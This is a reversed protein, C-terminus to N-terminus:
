SITLTVEKTVIPTADAGSPTITFTVTAKGITTVDGTPSIAALGTDGMKRTFTVTYQTMDFGQGTLYNTIATVINTTGTQVGVNTTNIYINEDPATTYDSAYVLALRADQLTRTATVYELEGNNLPDWTKNLSLKDYSDKYNSWNTLNYVNNKQNTNLSSYKVVENNFANITATKARLILGTKVGNIAKTYENITVQNALIPVDITFENCVSWYDNFSTVTYIPRYGESYFERAKKYGTYDLNAAASPVLAERAALIRNTKEDVESQPTLVTVDTSTPTWDGAVNFSAYLEVWTAYAAWSDPTALKAIDGVYDATKTKLNDQYTSIAAKFNALDTSSVLKGQALAINNKATNVDIQTNDKTVQNAYLVAVYDAWSKATFEAERGKYKDRVYIYAELDAGKVLQLQAAKINKTAGDIKSQTDETTVANAILAAQYTAWSKTTWDDALKYLPDALATDYATTVGKKVLNFQAAQIKLVAADIQVQSNDKNMLNALLVKKYPTWTAVTYDQEPAKALIATYADFNTGRKVLKTPAQAALINKVATKIQDQSNDNTMVNAAVVKQYVAWSASTYDAEKVNNLAAIYDTLIGTPVLLNQAIKIKAVAADILIQGSDATVVNVKLVNQYATWSASTYSTEKASYAALTALYVATNGLPVLKPQAAVIKATAADIATQGSAATVINADLVKQYIAWSASTNEAKKAKALAATYDSMDGIPVLKPQAALIKTTAADIETQTNNKTVKNVDLVKQYIAWSVTTYDAKNAAAVVLDYTSVDGAKVLKIQAAKINKIATEIATQTDNETMVNANVVLQYIGWSVTTYNEEKAADLLANYARFDFKKVMNKQGAIIKATAADVDVQTNAESVVNAAVIKQYAAWSDTTYDAERVAALVSYYETVNVKKQLDKQALLIEATAADIETQTNNLTVVNDDVVVQYVAWTDPTYDAEKAATLATNYAALNKSRALQRQAAVIKATAAKIEDKTNDGTMVNADVVQQYVAWSDVTYNDKNVVALAAKYAALDVNTEVVKIKISELRLSLGVTGAIEGDAKWGQNWGYNEGHVMYQVSYDPLTNGYADVLVIEIAEVRQSKGESGAFDGDKKWNYTNTINDPNNQWGENEIHVNYRISAGAPITGTLRISFGEIRKSEGTTGLQNDSQVWSGDTPSDGYDQVHGRYEVGITSATAVQEMQAWASTPLVISFLFFAVLISTVSKKMIFNREKKKKKKLESDDIKQLNRM